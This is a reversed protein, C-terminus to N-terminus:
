RHGLIPYPQYPEELFAIEEAGLEIEVAGVADELHHRQSAGIAPAVVAPRHLMWALAAM